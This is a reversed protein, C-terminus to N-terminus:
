FMRLRRTGFTPIVISKVASMASVASTTYQAALQANRLSYWWSLLLHECTRSLLRHLRDGANCDQAEVAFAIAEENIAYEPSYGRIEQYINPVIVEMQEDLAAYDDETLVLDEFLADIEARQAAATQTRLARLNQATENAARGYLEKKDIDIYHTM